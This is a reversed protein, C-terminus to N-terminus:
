RTKNYKEFILFNLKEISKGTIKEHGQFAFKIGFYKNEGQSPIEFNLTFRDADFNANFNNVEALQILYDCIQDQYVTFLQTDVEEIGDVIYSREDIPQTDDKMESMKDNQDIQYGLFEEQDHKSVSGSKSSDDGIDFDHDDDNNLEDEIDQHMINGKEKDSIDDCMNKYNNLNNKNKNNRVGFDDENKFNVEYESNASAQKGFQKQSCEEMHRQLAQMYIKVESQDAIPGKMWETQFVENLSLRSTPYYYVLAVFLDKFSEHLQFGSQTAYSEWLMWYNEFQNSKIFRYLGDQSYAMEMFPPHGTKMSFLIVGLAFIDVSRGLYGIGKFIEPAMYRLTGKM